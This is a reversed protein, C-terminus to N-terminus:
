SKKNPKVVTRYYFCIPILKSSSKSITMKPFELLRAPCYGQQGYNKLLSFENQSDITIRTNSVQGYSFKQQNVLLCCHFLQGSPTVETRSPSFLLCRFQKPKLSQIEKLTLFNPPIRITSHKLNKLNVIQDYIKRWQRVSISLGTNKKARGKLSLFNFGIATVKLQDLFHVLPIIETQNIKNVTFNVFVPYGIKIAKKLNEITKNYSGPGRILDNTKPTFGDLSFYLQLYKKCPLKFISPSVGNTAVTINKYGLRHAYVIAKKLYPVTLAEGGSFNISTSGNQRYFDLITKTQKWNLSQSQHPSASL